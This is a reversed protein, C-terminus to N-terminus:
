FTLYLNFGYRRTTPTAGVEFGQVNSDATTALVEPDLNLGELVNPAKWWLNRGSVSFRATGFPTKSLINKPLSYGM